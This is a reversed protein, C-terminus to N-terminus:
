NPYLKKLKKIEDLNIESVILGEKNTIEKLIKHPSAIATYSVQDESDLVPNCLGVFNLNEFARASILSKLLEIEKKKLKESYKRAHHAHLEYMWQAPCFIIQAGKKQMRRFLKGFKLDWCIAIGIKAFDTKFVGIRKGSSLGEEDYLHIKKYFGVIEGKRDILIAANYHKGKVMFDESIIAWISNKKCEERIELILHHGFHLVENKHVCSEPFCIIDANKKKALRIYKKIKALNNNSKEYYKIQALAIIPGRKKM